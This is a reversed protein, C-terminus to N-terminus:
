KESLDAPPHSPTQVRLMPREMSVDEYGSPPPIPKELFVYDEDKRHWNINLVMALPKEKNFTKRFFVGFRPWGYAGESYSHSYGSPHAEVAQFFAGL